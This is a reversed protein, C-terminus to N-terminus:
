HLKIPFHPLDPMGCRSFATCPFLLFSPGATLTPRVYASVLLVHSNAKAPSAATTTAMNTV